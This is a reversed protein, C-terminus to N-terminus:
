CLRKAPPSLSPLLFRILSLILDYVSQCVQIKTTSHAAVSNLGLDGLRPRELTGVVARSTSFESEIDYDFTDDDDTVVEEQSAAHQERLMATTQEVALQRQYEEEDDEDYDDEDEERPDLALVHRVDRVSGLTSISKVTDFSWASTVTGNNLDVTRAAESASMKITPAGGNSRSRGLEDRQAQWDQYREILETLHAIKRGGRIFRHQLLEAASPRQQL